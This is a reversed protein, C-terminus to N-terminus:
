EVEIIIPLPTNRSASCFFPESYADFTDSWGNNLTLYKFQVRLQVTQDGVYALRRGSAFTALQGPNVILNGIVAEERWKGAEDDLYDFDIVKIQVPADGQLFSNRVRVDVNKCPDAAALQVGSALTIMAASLMALKMM